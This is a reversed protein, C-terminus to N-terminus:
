RTTSMHLAVGSADRFDLRVCFPEASRISQDAHAFRGRKRHVLSLPWIGQEFIAGFLGASTFLRYGDLFRFELLSLGRGACAPGHSRFVDGGPRVLTVSALRIRPLRKPLREVQAIYCSRRRRDTDLRRM